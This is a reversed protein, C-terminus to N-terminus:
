DEIHANVLTLLRELAAMNKQIMEYGERERRAHFEKLGQYNGTVFEENYVTKIDGQLLDIQTLIVKPDRDYDLDPRRRGGDDATFAVHGVATVIELTVLNQISERIRAKLDKLM